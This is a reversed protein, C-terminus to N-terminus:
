INRHTLSRRSALLDELEDLRKAQTQLSEDIARLRETMDDFPPEQL